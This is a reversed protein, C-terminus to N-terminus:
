SYDGNILKETFEQMTQLSLKRIRQTLVDELDMSANDVQERWFDKADTASMDDAGRMSPDGPDFAKSEQDHWKDVLEGVNSWDVRPFYHENNVATTSSSVDDGQERLIRNREERIIQRLYRQSIKM